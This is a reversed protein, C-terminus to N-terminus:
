LGSLFITDTITHTCRSISESVEDEVLTDCFEHCSNDYGGSDFPSYSFYEAPQNNGRIEAEIMFSGDPCVECRNNVTVWNRELTISDMQDAELSLSLTDYMEGDWQLPADSYFTCEISYDYRNIVATRWVTTCSYQKEGAIDEFMCSVAFCGLLSLLVYMYKMHVIYKKEYRNQTITETIVAHCM